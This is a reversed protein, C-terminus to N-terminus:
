QAYIRSCTGAAPPPPTPGPGDPRRIRVLLTKTFGQMIGRFQFYAASLDAELHVVNVDVDYIEAFRHLAHECSDCMPQSIFAHISGGSTVARRKIDREISRLAKLEADRAHIRSSNEGEIQTAVIASNDQDSVYAHVRTSDEVIYSALSRTARPLGTPLNDQGSMAYYIRTRQRGDQRYTYEFAAYTARTLANHFITFRDYPVIDGSLQDMYWAAAPEAHFRFADILPTTVVDNPDTQFGQVHWEKAVAPMACLALAACFAFRFVNM